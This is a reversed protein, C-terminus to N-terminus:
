QYGRIEKFIQSLSESTADFMRGGTLSAIKEMEAKDADGFLVTFTKIQQAQAPLRQFYSRFDAESLGTNTQGDSMLVISYFRDPDQAQAAQARSYAEALAAYIATNGGAQLQDAFDRIRQMDEGAAATSSVGFQGADLVETSFPLLAIQERSRFRAFQGTLSQDLGTLNGLAAKLDQLGEGEMSGSVDLVFFTTSPRRQEDLYSFLLADIVDATNPFPLEILLPDPIRQDLRIGPVVPRRLAAQMLKEQFEPSRIFAALRDYAERKDSDLLMLPYDAMVIGEKPYVMVLPEKLQKGENLGLLVSEYNIMGDLTDQSHVYSEALWGSSGATLAQGKFFGQLAEVDIDQTELADGGASLPIFIHKAFITPMPYMIVMDPQISGDARAAQAIFQAEYIMVAPSLGMGKVLYDEFPEQSSSPRLGQRLFMDTLMSMLPQAQSLNQVINDGNAVYSMLALYMAASNSKRVDTTTILVSKNAVFVTNNPLDKWRVESRILPLLANMDITYYGGQDQAIGQQVLLDAISKWSAIAMPTFFPTVSKTKGTEQLIKEAAPVGSPFVFDYQSLDFSTAIERSGAKQITVELGHARLAKKVRPDEFFPAKESGVLGTVGDIGRNTLLSVAVIALAIGIIALFVIRTRRM